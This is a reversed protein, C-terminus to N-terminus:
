LAIPLPFEMTFNEVHLTLLPKLTSPDPFFHPDTKMSIVSSVRASGSAAPRTLLLRGQHEQVIRLPLLSTTIPFRLWSTKLDVELVSQGSKSVHIHHKSSTNTWNFDAKEKPIGWNEIGNVVSAATSVYIKSISFANQNQFSFIGPIFLLEFYPGVPSSRYDVIMVTGWGSKFADKQFDHLFGKQKVFQKSFRYLLIFGSGVLRWPPPVRTSQNNTETFM